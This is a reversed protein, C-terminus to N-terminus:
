TEIQALIEVVITAMRELNDRAIALPPMLVVVNGLPRIILGKERCAACVEYVDMGNELDPTLKLVEEQEGGGENRAFAPSAVSAGSLAAILATKLTM